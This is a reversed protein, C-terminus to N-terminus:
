DDKGEKNCVHCPEIREDTEADHLWGPSGNYGCFYCAGCRTFDSVMREGGQHREMQERRATKRYDRM